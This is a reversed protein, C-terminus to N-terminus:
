TRLAEQLVKELNRATHEWRHKNEADMRSRRGMERALEPHAALHLIAQTLAEEDCPPVLWGTEGHQITAPMGGEGSAITPLGAAKYDFIKLGSYEPWGCYPSLAIDAQALRPAYEQDTLQGLFQVRDTLGLESVMRRAETEAGGSGILLLCLNPHQSAANALAPLLVNIGHWPYFGGLYVLTVSRDSDARDQFSRLQSRPLLDVLATGNEITHIRSADVGWQEILNKRWGDGTAVLADASRMAKGMIRRSIDFQLGQPLENKAQLDSIPDGNYELILPVHLRSAAMLGGYTMWSMRELFIECDGLERQCAAAFHLSEFYGLYPLRLDHQIRRIGREGLRAIGSGDLNAEVVRFQELDETIWLENNLRFLIWVSHGLDQLGRSVQRVHNAPGNYPPRRIEEGKQMLYGIKM